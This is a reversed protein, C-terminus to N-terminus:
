RVACNDVVRTQSRVAESADGGDALRATRAESGSDDAACGDAAFTATWSSATLGVASGLTVRALPLHCASADQWPAHYMILSV